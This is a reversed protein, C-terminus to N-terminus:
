ESGRRRKESDRLAVERGHRSLSRMGRLPSNAQLTIGKRVNGSGGSRRRPVGDRSRTGRKLERAMALQKEETLNWFFFPIMALIGCAVGMVSWIVFVNRMVEPNEYDLSTNAGYAKLIESVLLGTAMGCVTTAVSTYQSMYGDLRDGTKWQQYECYDATMAPSTVTWLAAFINHLFIGAFMLYPTYDAEYAFLVLFLILVSLTASGGFSLLTMKKKGM